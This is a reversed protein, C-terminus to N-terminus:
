AERARIRALPTLIADLMGTPAEQVDCELRVGSDREPPRVASEVGPACSSVRGDSVVASYLELLHDIM